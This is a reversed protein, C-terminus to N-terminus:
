PLFCFSRLALVIAQQSMRQQSQLPIRCGVVVNFIKKIEIIRCFALLVLQPHDKKGDIIM